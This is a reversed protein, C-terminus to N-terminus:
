ACFLNWTNHTAVALARVLSDISVARDYISFTLEMGKLDGLLDSSAQLKAILYVIFLNVKNQRSHPLSRYLM